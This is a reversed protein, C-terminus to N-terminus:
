VKHYHYLYMKYSLVFVCNCPIVVQGTMVGRRVDPCTIYMSMRFAAGNGENSQQGSPPYTLKGQLYGDGGTGTVNNYIQSDGRIEFGFPCEVAAAPVSIEFSCNPLIKVAAAVLYEVEGFEVCHKVPSYEYKNCIIKKRKIKQALAFPMCAVQLEFQMDYNPECCDFLDSTLSLDGTSEGVNREVPVLPDNIMIAYHAKSSSFSTPQLTVVGTNVDHLIEQLQFTLQGSNNYILPSSATVKITDLIVELRVITYLSNSAISSLNFRGDLESILNTSTNTAIGRWMLGPITELVRYSDYIPAEIGSVPALSDFWFKRMSPLAASMDVKLVSEAGDIFINDIIGLTGTYNNYVTKGIYSIPLSATNALFGNWSYSHLLSEYTAGYLIVDGTHITTIEDASYRAEFQNIPLTFDCYYTVAYESTKYVKDLGFVDKRAAPPLKSNYYGTIGSISGDQVTEIVMYQSTQMINANRAAIDEETVYSWRPAPVPVSSDYIALKTIKYVAGTANNTFSKGVVEYAAVEVDTNYGCTLQTYLKNKSSCLRVYYTGSNSFPFNHGDPLPTTHIPDGPDPTPLTDMFYGNRNNVDESLPNGGPVPYNNIATTDPAGTGIDTDASKERTLRWTNAGKSPTTPASTLPADREDTHPFRHVFLDSYTVSNYVGTQKIEFNSGVSAIPAMTVDPYQSVEIPTIKATCLRYSRNNNITIPISSSLEFHRYLHLLGDPTLDLDAQNPNGNTLHVIFETGLRYRDTQPKIAYVATDIFIAEDYDKWTLSTMSISKNVAKSDVIIDSSGDSKRALLGSWQGNVTISAQPLIPSLPDATPSARGSFYSAVSYELMIGPTPGVLSANEYSTVTETKSSINSNFEFSPCVCFPQPIFMNDTPEVFPNQTPGTLVVSTPNCTFLMGTAPFSISFDPTDCGKFADKNLQVPFNAM